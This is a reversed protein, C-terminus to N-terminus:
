PEEQSMGTVVWQDGRRALGVMVQLRDRADRQLTLSQVARLGGSDIRTAGFALRPFSAGTNQWLTLLQDARLHLVLWPFAAVEPVRGGGAPLVVCLLRPAGPLLKGSFLAHSFALVRIVDEDRALDPPAALPNKDDGDSLGDGDSDALAPNTFLALEESDRLGDQDRDKFFDQYKFPHVRQQTKHQPRDPDTGQARTHTWAVTIDRGRVKLSFTPPPVEGAPDAFSTLGTFVPEAWVKGGDNSSTLFLDYPRGLRDDAFAVWVRDSDFDKQSPHLGRNDGDWYNTLPVPRRRRLASSGLRALYARLAESSGDAFLSRAAFWATEADTELLGALLEVSGPINLERALAAGLRRLYGDENRLAWLIGRGFEVRGLRYLARALIVRIWMATESEILQLLRPVFREDLSDFFRVAPDEPPPPADRLRDMFFDLGPESGSAALLELMMDRRPGELKPLLRLALRAAADGASAMATLCWSAEEAAQASRNAQTALNKLRPLLSDAAAESRLLAISQYLARRVGRDPEDQLRGSLTAFADDLRLVGLARAAEARTGAHAHRLGERIRPALGTLRQAAAARLAHIRLLHSGDELAADLAEALPKRDAEPTLNLLEATRAAGLRVLLKEHRLARSVPPLAADGARALLRAPGEPLDFTAPDACGLALIDLAPGDHLRSLAAAAQLRLKQGKEALRAAEELDSRRPDIKGALWSAQPLNLLIKQLTELQRPRDLEHRYAAYASWVTDGAAARPPKEVLRRAGEEPINALARWTRARVETDASSLLEELTSLAATFKMLCLSKAAEVRVLPVGQQSLAVLKERVEKTNYRWLVGAAEARAVANGSDLLRLLTGLVRPDNIEAFIGVAQEWDPIDREQLLRESMRAVRDAQASAPGTPALLSISLSILLLRRADTM